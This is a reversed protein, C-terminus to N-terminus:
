EYEGVLTDLCILRHSFHSLPYNHSFETLLLEDYLSTQGVNQSLQLSDNDVHDYYSKVKSVDKLCLVHINIKPCDKVTTTKLLYFIEQAWM